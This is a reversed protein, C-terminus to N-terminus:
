SEMLDLPILLEEALPKQAKDSKSQDAKVTTTEIGEYWLKARVLNKTQFDNIDVFSYVSPITVLFLVITFLKYM